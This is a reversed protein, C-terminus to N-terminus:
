FFFLFSPTEGASCHSTNRYSLLFTDLEHKWNRGKNVAYQIAKKIVRNIPEIQRNAQPWLSTSRNHTIGNIKLFKLNLIKLTLNDGLTEPLGHESFIKFLKSINAYTTSKLIGVFPFRSSYDVLILLTEGIPFSGCLDVAVSLWPSEPMPIPMMSAPQHHDM